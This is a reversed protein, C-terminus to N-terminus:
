KGKRLNDANKRLEKNDRIGTTGTTEDDDQIGSARVNEEIEKSSVIGSRRQFTPRNNERRPPVTM